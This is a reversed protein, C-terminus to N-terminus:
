DRGSRRSPSAMKRRAATASQEENRVRPDLRGQGRVSISRLVRPRRATTVAMRENLWAVLRKAVATEEFEEAFQRCASQYSRRGNRLVTLANDTMNQVDGEPALRGTSGEVIADKVGTVAWGVTPVGCAAAEIVVNPLGERHSTFLLLDIRRLFGPVDDVYGVWEIGPDNRLRTKTAMDVPDSDDIAGAILLRATPMELRVAAMVDLAESIGKDGALRGVFGITQIAEGESVEPAPVFMQLDVGKSSGHGLVTPKDKSVDFVLLLDALSNSVALVDTSLSATLRDLLMTVRRGMGTMTEWRAGRHLYIRLPVGVIRSAVITLLAAKPTSALVAEPRIKAMLFIWRALAGLDAGPRISRGMKLGHRVIRADPADDTWDGPSSVLHVEWGAAVLFPVQPLVFATMTQPVTTSILLRPM